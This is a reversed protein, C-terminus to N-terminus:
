KFKVNPCHPAPYTRHKRHERLDWIWRLIRWIPMREGWPHHEM